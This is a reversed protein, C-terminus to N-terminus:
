LNKVIQDIQIMTEAFVGNNDIVRDCEKMFQEKTLQSAMIDDIKSEKYGRSYFLRNKRVETKVYVYWLEDYIEEYHDEIM